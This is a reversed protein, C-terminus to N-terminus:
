PAWSYQGEPYTLPARGPAPELQSAAAQLWSTSAIPAVIANSLMRLVRPAVRLVATETGAAAWIWQYQALDQDMVVRVDRAFGFPPIGGASYGTLERAERASAARIAVEGTVAALYGLDVQNRGSVLCVIALLRGEPRPAVFVLSKVIQGLEADFAAAADEATRASEPMLRIDLAIGKRSAAEVVRQVGPTSLDNM